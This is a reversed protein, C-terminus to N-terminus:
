GWRKARRSSSTWRSWRPLAAARSGAASAPCSRRTICMCAEQMLSGTWPRRARRRAISPQQGAEAYLSAAAARDGARHDGAGGACGEGDGGRSRRLPAGPEPRAHDPPAGHRGRRAAARAARPDAPPDDRRARDDARRRDAAEPQLRAGDRDDRAPAPRRLAPAPLQAGPAGPRRHRGQADREGGRELRGRRAAAYAAGAVGRDSRGGHLDPEAGDDAGPLDGRHRARAAPAARRAAHDASGPGSVSHEGAAQANEILRM